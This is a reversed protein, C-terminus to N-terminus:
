KRAKKYQRLKALVHDDAKLEGNTALELMAQRSDPVGGTRWKRVAPKSIGFLKAVECDDNFGYHQKVDDLKM